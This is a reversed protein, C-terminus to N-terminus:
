TESAWVGHQQQTHYMMQQSQLYHLPSTTDSGARSDGDESPSSSATPGGEGEHLSNSRSGGGDSFTRQKGDCKSDYDPDCPSDDGSHMEQWKKEVLEKPWKEPCGFKPMNNAITEWKSRGYDEWAKVM